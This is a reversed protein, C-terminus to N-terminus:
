QCSYTTIKRDFKGHTETSNQLLNREIVCKKLAQLIFWSNKIKKYKAYTYCIKPLMVQRTKYRFGGVRLFNHSFVLHNKISRQHLYIKMMKEIHTPPLRSFIVQRFQCKSHSNDITFSNQYSVIIKGYM